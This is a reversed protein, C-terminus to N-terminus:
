MVVSRPYLRPVIIAPALVALFAHALSDIIATVFSPYRRGISMAYDMMNDPIVRPIDSDLLMSAAVGTRSNYLHKTTNSVVFSSQQFYQREEVINWRM